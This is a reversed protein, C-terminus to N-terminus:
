QKNGVFGELYAGDTSKIVYFLSGSTNTAGASTLGNNTQNLGEYTIGNDATFIPITFATGASNSVGVKANFSPVDGSQSTVRVRSNDIKTVVMTQNTIIEIVGITSDAYQGSYTGVLNQTLDECSGDDEAAEVNYNPSSPDTCGSKKCSSVSLVMSFVTLGFILKKM